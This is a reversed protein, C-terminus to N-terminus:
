ACRVSTRSPLAELDSLMPGCIQPLAAFPLERFRLITMAM